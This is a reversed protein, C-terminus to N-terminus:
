YKKVGGDIIFILMLGNMRLRDEALSKAKAVTERDGSLVLSYLM